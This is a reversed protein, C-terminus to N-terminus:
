VDSGGRPAAKLALLLADAETDGTFLGFEPQPVCWSGQSTLEEDYFQTLQPDGWAERVLALLCGLTAPDTWDPTGDEPECQNVMNMAFVNVAHGGTQIRFKSGAMAMGPMWRVRGEALLAAWRENLESYEDPM